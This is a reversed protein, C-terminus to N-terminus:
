RAKSTWIDQASRSSTRSPKSLGTHHKDIAHHVARVAEHRDEHHRAKIEDPGLTPDAQLMLAAAGSVVPTAMSTGSLQFYDSSGASILTDPYETRLTCNPSALLSVVNNGPAVLDPKVVHDLLTPGKSSYSTMKDDNRWPTENANM